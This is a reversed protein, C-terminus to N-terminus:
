PVARVYRVRLDRLADDRVWAAPDDVSAPSAPLLGAASSDAVTWGGGALATASYTMPAEALATTRVRVDIDGDGDRDAPRAGTAPVFGVVYLFFGGAASGQGNYPVDRPAWRGPLASGDVTLTITRAIEEFRAAKDAEIAGRAGEADGRERFPAIVPRLRAMVVDFPVEVVVVADLRDGDLRVATRLSYLERSGPHALAAALLWMM